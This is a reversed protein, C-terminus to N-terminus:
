GFCPIRFSFESEGYPALGDRVLIAWAIEKIISLLSNLYELRDNESLPYDPGEEATERKPWFMERYAREMTVIRFARDDEPLFFWVVGSAIEWAAEEGSEPDYFFRDLDESYGDPDTIKLEERRAEVWSQALQMCWVALAETDLRGRRLYQYRLVHHLLGRGDWNMDLRLALGAEKFLEAFTDAANRILRDYDEYYERTEPLMHCYDDLLIEKYEGRKDTVLGLVTLNQTGKPDSGPLFMKEQEVFNLKWGDNFLQTLVEEKTKKM